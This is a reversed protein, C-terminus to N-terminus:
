QFFQAYFQVVYGETIRGLQFTFIPFIRLFQKSIGAFVLSCPTTLRSQLQCSSPVSVLIRSHSPLNGGSWANVRGVRGRRPRQAVDTAGPIGRSRSFANLLVPFSMLWYKSGVCQAKERQCHRQFM